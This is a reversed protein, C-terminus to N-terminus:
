EEETKPTWTMCEQLRAYWDKTEVAGMVSLCTYQPDNEGGLSCAVLCKDWSEGTMSIIRDQEGPLRTSPVIAFSVAATEEHVLRTVRFQKDDLSPNVMEFRERKKMGREELEKTSDHFQESRVEELIPWLRLYAILKNMFLRGVSAIASITEDTRYNQKPLYKWFAEGLLREGGSSWDSFGLLMAKALPLMFESWRAPNALSLERALSINRMTFPLAGNEISLAPDPWPKGDELASSVIGREAETVIFCPRVRWKGRKPTYAFWLTDRRNEAILTLDAESRATKPIHILDGLVQVGRWALSNLSLAGASEDLLSMVGEMLASIPYEKTSRGVKIKLIRSPNEVWSLPVYKKKESNLNYIGLRPIGEGRALLLVLDDDVEYEALVTFEGALLM